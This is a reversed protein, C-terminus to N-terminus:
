VGYESARYTMISRFVKSANLGTVGTRVKAALYQESDEDVTFSKKLNICNARQVGKAQGVTSADIIETSATVDTGAANLLAMDWVLTAGTDLDQLYCVVDVPVCAPPIVHMKFVDNAAAATVTLTAEQVYTEGASHPGVEHNGTDFQNSEFVAM